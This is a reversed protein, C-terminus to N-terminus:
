IDVCIVWHFFICVKMKIQFIIRFSRPKTRKKPTGWVLFSFCVGVYKIMAGPQIEGMIRSRKFYKSLFRLAQM